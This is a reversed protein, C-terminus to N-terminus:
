LACSRFKSDLRGRERHTAHRPSNRTDTHTHAHAEPPEWALTSSARRLGGLSPPLSPPLSLSLTTFRRQTAHHLFSPFSSPSSSISVPPEGDNGPPLEMGGPGDAAAAAATVVIVFVMVVATIVVVFVVAGAPVSGALAHRVSRHSRELGGKEVQVSSRPFGGRSASGGCISGHTLSALPRWVAAMAAGPAVAGTGTVAGAVGATVALVVVVVVVVARAAMALMAVTCIVASPQIQHVVVPTIEVRALHLDTGVALYRKRGNRM